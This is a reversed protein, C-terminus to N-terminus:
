AEGRPGQRRRRRLGMRQHRHCLRDPQVAPRPLDQDAAPPMEDQAKLRELLEDYLWRPILDRETPYVFRFNLVNILLVEWYLEM